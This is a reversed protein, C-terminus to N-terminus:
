QDAYLVGRAVLDEVTKADYVEGAIARTDEGVRPVSTPRVPRQGGFRWPPGILSVGHEEPQVLRLWDVQEHHVYDDVTLVPAFPVDAETLLKSWESSPRKLMEAAAIATIEAYHKERERFNPFRPDAALEPRGIVGVFAEWFRQSSSLHVAISDGSATKLVFNQAQPHRSQRSPNRHGDAYYQTIADVSLLAVAEMISTEVRQGEGTAGRGVLATLIAMASSLGTVLDAICTGLLQPAGADSFITQYAGYAQGITDYAPRDALPGGAGFGNVSVYILDERLARCDDPGLGIAALKGPRLNEIVVDFRPVLSRLLEVGERQKLDVSLSRKGANYQVFYESEDNQGRRFDEGVVPKEAKVVEAGLASLLSTGYPMSIYGGIELIRVHSLPQSQM